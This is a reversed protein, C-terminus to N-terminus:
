SRTESRAHRVVLVSCPAYRAIKRAVGGLPVSESEGSGQAGILILATKLVEATKLIEDAPDGHTLITEVKMHRSKVHRGIEKLHDAGEREAKEQLQGALQKFEDKGTGWHWGELFGPKRVVHSVMVKPRVRVGLTSLVDVLRFAEHSGDTALLVKPSTKGTMSRSLKERVLLVSCSAERVVWDSTSGLLFRKIKSLGRTGMIVLDIHYDKVAKLIEGGPIGEIVRTHVPCPNHACIETKTQELFLNAEDVMKGRVQAIVRDWSSPVDSLPMPPSAKMEVVHFLYIESKEPWQVSKVFQIAERSHASPDTAVLINM